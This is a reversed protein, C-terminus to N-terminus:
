DISFVNAAGSAQQFCSLLWEFDARFRAQDSPHAYRSAGSSGLPVIDEGWDYGWRAFHHKFIDNLKQTSRSSGSNELFWRRPTFDGRHTLVTAIAAPLASDEVALGTQGNFIEPNMGAMASSVVCPLDARFFEYISRCANEYLSLHVGLRCTELQRPVETRRLNARVKVRRGLGMQMVCQNFEQVKSEQGRGLFLARANQLRPDRLLELMLSHRKRPLDDFTANFVIDYQKPAGGSPAGIDTLFDGHALAVPEMHPQRSLFAVDEPSAVGVLCPDALVSFYRWWAHRFLVGMPPEVYLVYRRSIWSLLDPHLVMFVYPISFIRLIGKARHSRFPKLVQCFHRLKFRTQDKGQFKSGIAQQEADLFAEVEPSQPFQRTVQLLREWQRPFPLFALFFRAQQPWFGSASQQAPQNFIEYRSALGQYPWMMGKSAQLEPRQWVLLTSLTASVDTRLKRLYAPDLASFLKGSDVMELFNEVIEISQQSSGGQIQSVCMMQLRNAFLNEDAISSVRLAGPLAELVWFV